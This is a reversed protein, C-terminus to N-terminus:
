ASHGGTTEYARQIARRLSAEAEEAIGIAANIEDAPHLVARLAAEDDGTGYDGSDVWEIDHMAKAVLRLHAAFAIRLPNGRSGHELSSAFDDVKYCTYNYSGGSM